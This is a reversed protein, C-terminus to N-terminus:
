KGFQLSYMEEEETQEVIQFAGEGDEEERADKRWL